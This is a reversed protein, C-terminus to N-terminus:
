DNANNKGGNHEVYKYFATKLVKRVVHICKIFFIYIFTTFLSYIFHDYRLYVRFYVVFRAYLVESSSSLLHDGDMEDYSNFKFM